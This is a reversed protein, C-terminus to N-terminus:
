FQIHCPIVYFILSNTRVLRQLNILKSIDMPIDGAHVYILPNLFNFTNLGVSNCSNSGKSSCKCM